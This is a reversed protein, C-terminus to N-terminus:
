GPLKSNPGLHNVASDITSWDCKYDQWWLRIYRNLRELEEEFRADPSAVGPDKAHQKLWEQASATMGCQFRFNALVVLLDIQVKKGNGTKM